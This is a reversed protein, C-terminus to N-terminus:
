RRVCMVGLEVGSGILVLWLYVVQLSSRVPFPAPLSLQFSSQYVACPSGCLLVFGLRRLRGLGAPGFTVVTAIFSAELVTAERLLFSLGEL